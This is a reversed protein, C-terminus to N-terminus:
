GDTGVERSGVRDKGGKRGWGGDRGVDRKLNREGKRETKDVRREKEKERPSAARWKFGALPTLSSYARVGFLKPANQPSFLSRTLPSLLTLSTQMCRVDISTVLSVLIQPTPCELGM